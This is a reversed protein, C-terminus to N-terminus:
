PQMGVKAMEAEVTSLNSKIKNILIYSPYKYILQKLIDHSSRLYTERKIPDDTQKASYFAKAARNRERNVIGSVAEDLIARAAENASEEVGLSDITAIADDFKESEVLQRARSLTQEKMSIAGIQERLHQEEAKELRELAQEYTDSQTGSQISERNEKLMSRAEEFRGEKTLEEVAELTESPNPPGKRQGEGSAESPMSPSSPQLAAM